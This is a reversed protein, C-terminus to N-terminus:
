TGYPPISERGDFLCLLGTTKLESSSPFAIAECASSCTEFTLDLDFDMDILSVVAWTRGALCRAFVLDVAASARFGVDVCALGVEDGLSRVNFLPWGWFISSLLDSYAKKLLM